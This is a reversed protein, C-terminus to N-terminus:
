ASPSAEPTRSQDDRCVLCELTCGLAETLKFAADLSMGIRGTEYASITGEPILAQKALDSQTWGKNDRLSKLKKSVGAQDYPM